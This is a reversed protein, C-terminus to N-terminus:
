YDLSDCRLPPLARHVSAPRHHLDPRREALTRGRWCAVPEMRVQGVSQGGGCLGLTAFGLPLVPCSTLFHVAAFFPIRSFSRTQLLACWPPSLRAAEQPALFTGSSLFVALSSGVQGQPCPFILRFGRSPNAAWLSSAHHGLFTSVMSAPCSSASTPVFTLYAWPDRVAVGHMFQILMRIGFAM